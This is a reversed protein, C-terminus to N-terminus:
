ADDAPVDDLAEKLDTMFKEFEGFVGDREFQAEFQAKIADLPAPCMMCVGSVRKHFYDPMTNHMYRDVANNVAPQSIAIVTAPTTPM